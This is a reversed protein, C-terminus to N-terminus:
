RTLRDARRGPDLREAASPDGRADRGGRANGATTSLFATEGLADLQECGERLERAAADLDGALWEIRGVLQAGSWYELSLGLEQTITRAQAVFTRAEDFRKAFAARM